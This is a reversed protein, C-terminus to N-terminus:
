ATKEQLPGDAQRKNREGGRHKKMHRSLWDQFRDLYIYYVPTIYLTLAQSVMLGGAVALGLPQRAEGGAGYGVAIPIAGMMAALTTMLIPRFRVLAGATISKTAGHGHGGSKGEGAGRQMELAFDIMMIANKKVIGVLMIIGVFGYIDLDKGFILLMVLAGLGAAPLGSLITLPHIFSEYLIGLVIYIVVVAMLLLLWLNDLSDQFAQATGQFSTSINDPLDTAALREVAEVATGISHGKALNFSITVSPLQGTHNVALPGVGTSVEVLTSLPVLTGNGSRIYLYNLSNIGDMFEPLLELIVSYDNTPALITSVKRTSYANSLANEVQAPTIGLAACKDRNIQVKVEPNSMSLDSNVDIVGPIDSMKRMFSDVSAYLSITDTGQLTFQYLAKSSSGGIRLPPPQSVYALVGPIASIRERLRRMISQIDEDREEKKVYRLSFSFNNMSSQPGSAGVTASWRLLGPERRVIDAVQAQYELVGDFSIGQVTEVTINVSGIDEFPMFGKPAQVFLFATVGLLLFSSLLAKGKHRLVTLLTRRYFQFLKDMGHELAAYFANQKKKSGHEHIDGHGGHDGPRLYRSCLMPTLILAVGGSILIAAAITVAFEHFLRGVIGGLFLVPIFVAVLSITMSLITFGIQKSGDLAAQRPTKGNEMHRVINELMVIADDVVFGVSLTLAMLSINNLSFGALYMVACAGIISLPLALSPIFTASLNRLFLFIVGIVLAITLVMTFKVDHVSERISESRDFMIEMNIAPPVQLRLEPLEKRIRDVVEVTNTGPQRRIALIMSEKGNYWSLRQDNEVSDTVKAITNLRVPAGNRWVVILPRFEDANMLQGSSQITYAREPGKLTGVPLNTNGQRLAAAVEDIGLDVAAMAQPDVQVRVAYKRSGYVDVQAVGSISSLRQAMFNEAYENVDSMRMTDSTLTLYFIPSDAPNVKRMTPPSPMDDPLSRQAQALATQVDQAAADIDRELAFQLVVRTTGMANVSTVSDLGSIIAFRKELPTAVSAAMTEPSAGPLSANVMITPFDVSPLDAVPLSRYAMFGAVMVGLMLLITAVPRRIFLASINV